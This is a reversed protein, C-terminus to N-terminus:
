KPGKSKEYLKTFRQLHWADIVDDDILNSIKTVASVMIQLHNRTSEDRMNTKLKRVRETMQTEFVSTKEKVFAVLAEMRRCRDIEADFLRWAIAEVNMDDYPILLLSIIFFTRNSHLSSNHLLLECINTLIRELFGDVFHNGSVLSSSSNWRNFEKGHKPLKSCKFSIPRIHLLTMSAYLANYSPNCEVTM